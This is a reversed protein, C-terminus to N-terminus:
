ARAPLRLEKAAGAGTAVVDWAPGPRSHLVLRKAPPTTIPDPSQEWPLMSGAPLPISDDHDLRVMLSAELSQFLDKMLERDDDGTALVDPLEAIRAVLYGDSENKSPVITWPLRLLARLQQQRTWPM